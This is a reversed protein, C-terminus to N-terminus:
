GQDWSKQTKKMKDFPDFCIFVNLDGVYRPDFGFCCMEGYFFLTAVALVTSPCTLCDMHGVSEFPHEGNM